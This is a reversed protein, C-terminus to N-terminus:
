PADEEEPVLLVVARHNEEWGSMTLVFASFSLYVITSLWARPIDYFFFGVIFGTAWAGKLAAALFFAWRDHKIFAQLACVGGVVAWTWAWATLPMVATQGAYSTNVAARVAPPYSNVTFMGIAIAADLLAFFLLAIGRRGVHKALRLAPKMLRQHMPIM